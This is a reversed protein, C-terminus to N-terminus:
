AGRRKNSEAAMARVREAQKDVNAWFRELVELPIEESKEWRQWTRVDVEALRAASRKSIPEDLAPDDDPLVGSWMRRMAQARIKEIENKM